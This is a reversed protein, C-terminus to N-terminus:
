PTAEKGAKSKLFLTKLEALGRAIRSKVTGLPVGVIEAIENYSYDELYYLALPAKFVPDVQNILVLLAQSDIRNIVEPDINPLEEEVASIEHHPFRVIRRQTELFRRHLTTFLWTKVKSRDLLQHGKTAWVAFTDQVLDCASDENHTLSLAFRYLPAYHADVLNDFDLEAGGKKYSDETSVLNGVIIARLKAGGDTLAGFTDKQFSVNKRSGNEIESTVRIHTAVRPLSKDSAAVTLSQYDAGPIAHRETGPNASESECIRILSRGDSAARDVLVDNRGSFDNSFGSSLGVFVKERFVVL